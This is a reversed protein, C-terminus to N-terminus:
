DAVANKRALMAAPTGGLLRGFGAVLAPVVTQAGLLLGVAASATGFFAAFFGAQSGEEGLVCAGALLLAGFGTLVAAGLHRLWRFSNTSGTAAAGSLTKRSGVLTAIVAVAVVTAAAPVTSPPLLSYRIDPLIDRSVMVMRAVDAVAVGVVHGIGAGIAAVKAVGRTLSSRLQQSSAGILRLLELQQQRGAIVTDVGNSIVLAAVFLAIMIFVSSVISLLVGTSGGHQDGAVGLFDSATLVIGAYGASLGCVVGVTSLERLSGATLRYDTAKMGGGGAPQHPPRLDAASGHRPIRRRDARRGSGPHPRRVVRGCPRADGDRDGARVRPCRDDAPDAGRPQHAHRSGRDARGRPHDDAQRRT